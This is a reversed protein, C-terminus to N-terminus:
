SVPRSAGSMNPHVYKGARRPANGRYRPYGSLPTGRLVSRHKSSPSIRIPAVPALPCWGMCWAARQLHESRKTHQGSESSGLFVTRTKLLPCSRICIPDTPMPRSPYSTVISLAAPFWRSRRGPCTLTPHCLGPLRIESFLECFFPWRASTAPGGKLYCQPRRCVVKVGFLLM